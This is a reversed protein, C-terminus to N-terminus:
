FMGTIQHWTHEVFQVGQLYDHDDNRNVTNEAKWSVWHNIWEDLAVVGLDCAYTADSVAEKFSESKQSDDLVKRLHEGLIELPNIM